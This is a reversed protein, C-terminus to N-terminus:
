AACPEGQFIRWAREYKRRLQSIRGWSLGFRDAVASTREGSVFAAIIRRDRHALSKLWHAFDIRFAATDPISASREAIAVQQWGETGEGSRHFCYSYVRVGHRRHAVPSLVDKAADQKGGVHRGTRVHRVAFDALPGPKVVTLRGHAAALQYTLCAAAIAEQVADQRREAPLKRFRIQAHTKIAPLISLFGAHWGAAAGANPIASM